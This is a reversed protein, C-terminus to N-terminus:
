IHHEMQVFIDLVYKTMQEPSQEMGSKVWFSIMSWLGGLCFYYSYQSFISTENLQDPLRHDVSLGVSKYILKNQEKNLFDLLHHKELLVLFDSHKDWFKFYSLFGSYPTLCGIDHIMQAMEQLIFACHLSLIDDVSNFYRYYTRRNYDAFHSLEFITIESYPKKSMLYLLANIFSQQSNTIKISIITGGGKDCYYFFSVSLRSINVKNSNSNIM